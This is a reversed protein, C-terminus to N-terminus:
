REILVTWIAFTFIICITQKNETHRVYEQHVQRHSVQQHRQEAHRHLDGLRDRQNPVEPLDHALGDVEQLTPKGSKTKASTSSVLHTSYSFLHIFLILKNWADDKSM